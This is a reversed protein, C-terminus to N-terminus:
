RFHIIINKVNKYSEIEQLLKELQFDERGEYFKGKGLLYYTFNHHAGKRGNRGTKPYLLDFERKLVNFNKALSSQIYTTATKHQGIHLYVFKQSM